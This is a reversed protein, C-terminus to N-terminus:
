AGRVAELAAARWADRLPEVLELCSSVKAADKRLNAAVLEAHIFSYLEGLAAAGDWKSRDLSTNLEMVIAQAHVLETSARGLDREGLAATANVLDRVLRDLLMNLLAAPSATQVSNTAYASRAAHLTSM